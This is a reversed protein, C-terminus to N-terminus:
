RGGKFFGWRGSDGGSSVSTLGDLLGDIARGVGSRANDELVPTGSNMATPVLRASPIQTEVRRGITREIDDVTLGVRANARNLVLTQSARDLGLQDLVDVMKRIAHIAAVDTTTCLLIDTSLELATLTHDDIGAGTDVVLWEFESRLTTLLAGVQEVGIDDAEVPSSPGCLAWFGAEHPMLYSKVQVADAPTTVAHALTYEPVLRLAAAVDGFQVDLDILAVDKPHHRALGYALNTALMTKGSGGKPSAVVIVRGGLATAEGPAESEVVARVNRRQRSSRERARDLASSLEAGDSAPDVLDRAGSRLAQEWLEATPTAFLVVTIEPRRRDIEGAAAVLEASSWAPGLAVVAPDQALLHDISLDDLRTLQGNLSPSSSRLRDEFDADTSALVIESM